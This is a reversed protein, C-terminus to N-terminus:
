IAARDVENLDRVRYGASLLIEAISDLTDPTWEVGDLLQQILLMAEHDTM